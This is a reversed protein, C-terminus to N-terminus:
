IKYSKVMYGFKPTDCVRELSLGANAFMRKITEFDRVFARQSGDYVYDDSRPQTNTRYSFLSYVVGDDKLKDRINRLAANMKSDNVHIFVAYVWVYDILDDIESLDFNDNIIFRPKKQELVGANLEEDIGRNVIKENFDLGIYRGEDLEPILVSGLRLSGCGLDLFTKNKSFEPSKKVFEFQWEQILKWDGGVYIRHRIDRKKQGTM